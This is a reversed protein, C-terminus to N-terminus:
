CSFMLPPVRAGLSGGDVLARMDNRIRRGM